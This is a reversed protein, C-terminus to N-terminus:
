ETREHLSRRLIALGLLEGVETLREEACSQDSAHQEGHLQASRACNSQRASVQRSQSELCGRSSKRDALDM